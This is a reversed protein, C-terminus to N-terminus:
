RGTICHATRVPPCQMAVRTYVWAMRHCAGCAVSRCVHPAGVGLSGRQAGLRIRATALATTILFCALAESAVIRGAAYARVAYFAAPM